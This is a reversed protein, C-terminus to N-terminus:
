GPDRMQVEEGIEFRAQESAKGKGHRRRPVSSGTSGGDMQEETEDAEEHRPSNPPAPADATDPAKASSNPVIAAEAKHSAEEENAPAPTDAAPGSDEQEEADGTASTM